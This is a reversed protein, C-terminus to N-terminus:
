SGFLKKISCSLVSSCIIHLNSLLSEWWCCAHCVGSPMTYWWNAPALTKPRAMTNWLCCIHLKCVAARCHLSIGLFLLDVDPSITKYQIESAPRKIAAHKSYRTFISSCLHGPNLYMFASHHYRFGGGGGRGWGGWGGKRGGVGGVRGGGEGGEKKGPQKWWKAM